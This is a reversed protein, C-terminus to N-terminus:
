AASTGWPQVWQVRDAKLEAIIKNTIEGYLNTRDAGGHLTRDHRPM